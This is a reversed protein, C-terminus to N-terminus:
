STFRSCLLRCYTGYAHTLRRFPFRVFNGAPRKWWKQENSEADDRFNIYFYDQAFYPSHEESKFALKLRATLIDRSRNGGESHEERRTEPVDLLLEDRCRTEVM